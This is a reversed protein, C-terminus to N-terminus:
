SETLKDIKACIEHQWNTDDGVHAALSLNYLKALSLCRQMNWELCQEFERQEDETLDRHKGLYFLEGLRQHVSHMENVM